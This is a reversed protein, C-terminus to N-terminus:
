EPARDREAILRARRATIEFLQIEVINLKNQLPADDLVILPANAAVLDGDRVLVRVVVGGTPHQIAQRARTEQIRGSAIIAGSINALSAWSGFGAALLLLTLFGSYVFRRIPWNRNSNLEGSM